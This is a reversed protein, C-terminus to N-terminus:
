NIKKAKEGKYSEWRNIIVQCFIPDQEMMFCRRNLQDCSMLTSGSGGFLDTVITGPASCRKLPKEHLTLPKQTPHEYDQATDRKVLWINFLDFIDDILQNGSEVEKNLVENFAKYNPNLFPRGITGYICPEYVKNFAIQPVPNQNNKIWMCVRKNSIKLEEYIGQIMGIYKEDSWYFFHTDPTIHNKINQITKSIFDRYDADKKNDDYKGQYKNKTGVGTSYNMKINYPPDCYVMATKEKGMLKAVEEAMTSDGCMLRHEGLEYVDGQKIKTTKAEEVAKGQNFGDDTIDVNDFMTSLEEDGFGVDLLTEINLDQLKEPDWEGTNKNLRLNLKIEEDVTLKRNPVRVEVEDIGQDTYISLRQHGGILHNNLNIVLPEVTDFEKISEILELRQKESIKRPNYDAPILDKVKRKETSWIIKM